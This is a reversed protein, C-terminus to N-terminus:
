GRQLTLFQEYLLYFAAARPVTHLLSATLGRFLSRAGNQAVSDRFTQVLSVYQTPGCRSRHDQLRTKAVLLPHAIVCVSGKSLASCGIITLASHPSAADSKAKGGQCRSAWQVLLEYLPLTLSHPVGLLVQASCGRWFSRLGSYRFTYQVGRRVSSFSLSVSESAAAPRYKEAVEMRTKMLWIPNCVIASVLSAMLSAVFPFVRSTEGRSFLRILKSELERYLLMYVGWACISGIVSLQCGRWFATWGESQYILRAAELLKGYTRGNIQREKTFDQSAYRTRLVDFPHFFVTSLAGASQSALLHHRAARKPKDSQTNSSSTATTM